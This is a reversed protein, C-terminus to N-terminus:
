QIIYTITSNGDKKAKFTISNVVGSWVQWSQASGAKIFVITGSTLQKVTIDTGSVDGEVTDMKATLGCLDIVEFDDTNYQITFTYKDLDQINVATLVLDFEEGQVSNIEYTQVSSLTISTKTESWESYGSINKTRVRYTHSTDPTLGTHLYSTGTGTNIVVGDVEIEYEEAGTVKDWTVLISTMNGSTVINTPTAPGEPLTSVVFINSWTEEGSSTQVRVRYKHESGPILGTSNYSTGTVNSTLTGDVEIDYSNAGDMPNWMVTVATKKVLGSVNPANGTTFKTSQSIPISWNSTGSENVARVKITHQTNPTLGTLTYTVPVTSSEAATIASGTTIGIVSDITTPLASIASATTVSPFEIFKLGSNSIKFVDSIISGDFEIDYTTAGPVSSWNVTISAEDSAATINQPTQLGYTTVTLPQTWESTETAKRARVRYTHNTNPTLGDHICSPEMGNDIITGDIEVDYGESEPVADWTLAVSTDNANVKFNSPTGFANTLTNSVIMSSWESVKGGKKARVRYKHSTGPTLNSHTYTTRNSNDFTIGDVEIDYGTVGDVPDWSVTIKNLSPTAAINVPVPITDVLTTTNVYSSWESKGGPNISRVRYSHHTGPALSNHIYGTSPGNNVLVGDVEIDYGTAGPVSNWTVTVSTSLPITNLNQPIDPSAPLTSKSIEASWNGPGGANKARVKYKHPTGSNLNRHTYTTSTGNDITIGDAEIDYGIAGNVADWSVTITRDTATAIINAPSGPPAVLTTGTVASGLSTEINELNRAKASFTYTSNTALGKVTIIKKGIGPFRIWVPSVTLIGEQTVYQSSNVKVMYDTGPHNVDLSELDLTNSSINNVSLSPVEAKTYITRTASTIHLPDVSDRVEFNIYFPYNPSLNSLTYTPSLIWGSSTGNCSYRYGGVESVSDTASVSITVTKTTSSTTIPGLIPASKDVKFNVIYNIDPLGSQCFVTFKIKHDGETLTSMDIPNVNNFVVKQEKAAKSVVIQSRPSIESDLYYRFMLTEDELNAITIDPYYSKNHETLISNQSPSSNVVQPSAAEARGGLQIISKYSSDFSFNIGSFVIAMALLVAWLKKCRNQLFM